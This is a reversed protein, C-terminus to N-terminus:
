GKVKQQQSSESVSIPAPLKRSSMQHSGLLKASVRCGRYSVYPGRLDEGRGDCELQFPEGHTDRTKRGKCM